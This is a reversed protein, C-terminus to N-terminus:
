PKDALSGALDEAPIEKVIRSARGYARIKFPNEDLLELCLAVTKLIKAAATGDVSM